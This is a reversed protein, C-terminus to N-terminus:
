DREKIESVSINSGTGDEAQECPEAEEEIQKKKHIYKNRELRDIFHEANGVKGLDKEVARRAQVTELDKTDDYGGDIREIPVEIMYHALPDANATEEDVLEDEENFFLRYKGLAM